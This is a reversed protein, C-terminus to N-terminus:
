VDGDDTMHLRRHPPEQNSNGGSYLRNTGKRLRTVHISIYHKTIPWSEKWIRVWEVNVYLKENWAV